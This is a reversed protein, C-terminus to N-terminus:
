ANHISLLGLCPTLLLFWMTKHASSLPELFKITNAWFYNDGGHGVFLDQFLYGSCIAGIALIVLPLLM